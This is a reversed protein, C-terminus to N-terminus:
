ERKLTRLMLEDVAVRPSKAEYLVARMQEAIPMEIGAREGLACAARTSPVGEAVGGAAERAEDLGAGRGLARGLARNRSLGGTCTLVLDGLGALGALTEPRGGHALALRSIEALGRTILAAATNHGYGLGDVIGAAIAIVNKLAGGLEVGAVDASAYVRFSRTSLRRQLWEAREPEAAAVVVATPLGRAVELAFSPGSLVALPRGPLEAAAVESIRLLSGQEFGKTASVLLCGAPLWRAVACLAARCFESPVALLVAEAGALVAEPEGSARLGPPLSCGPLYGENRGTQEIERALEPRRALLAVEHGSRSLHCALATGWAGAGLM